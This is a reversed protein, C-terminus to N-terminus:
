KGTESNLSGGATCFDDTGLTACFHGSVPSLVFDMSYQFLLFSWIGQFIMIILSKTTKTHLFYHLFNLWPYCGTAIQPQWWKKLNEGGM